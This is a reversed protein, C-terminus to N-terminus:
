RLLDFRNHFNPWVSYGVFPWTFGIAGGPPIESLPIVFCDKDKGKVIVLIFIDAPNKRQLKEFLPFFYFNKTKLKEPKYRSRIEVNKGNELVIDFPRSNTQKHKIGLSDLKKSVFDEIEFGRKQNGDKIAHRTKGWLKTVLSKNGLPLKHLESTTMWLNESIMEKAFIYQEGKSSAMRKKNLKIGTNGIIQRVRERSMGFFVGIKDLTWDKNRLGEMEKKRNKRENENM